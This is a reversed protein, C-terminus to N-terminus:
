KKTITVTTGKVTCKLKAAKAAAQIQKKVAKAKTITIKTAKTGKFANVDVTKLNNGAIKITRIKKGTFAKANLARVKYTNGGIKVTAKLTLTKVNKGKTVAVSKGADADTKYSTGSVKKTKGANTTLATALKLKANASDATKQADAAKQEATTQATKADAAAKDSAAKADNAAKVDSAAKDTATKADATAKDAAAKADAAKQDAEAKAAEAEEQAKKAEEAEAEAVVAKEKDSLKWIGYFTITAGPEAGSIEVADAYTGKNVLFLDDKGADKALAWGEFTVKPTKNEDDFKEVTLGSGVVNPDSVKATADTATWVVNKMTGTVYDSNTVYEFRYSNAKWVAYATNGTLDSVKVGKAEDEWKATTANAVNSWGIFSYGSRTYTNKPFDFTEKSTKVKVDVTQSNQINDDLTIETVPQWVAYFVTAKDVKYKSGVDIVTAGSADATEKTTYDRDTTWGVLEFGSIEFTALSIESGKKVSMTAGPQASINKSSTYEVKIADDASVRVAYLTVTADKTTFFKDATTGDFYEPATADPTTAWGRLTGSITRGSLTALTDTADFDVTKRSIVDTGDYFVYKYTDKEWTATLENNAVVEYDETEKVTAAGTGNNYSWEKFHWNTAATFPNVVKIKTGVIQKELDKNNSNPAAHDGPKLVFKTAEVPEVEAEIANFIPVFVTTENVTVTAGPTCGNTIQWKGDSGASAETSFGVLEYKYGTTVTQGYVLAIENDGPMISDNVTPLTVKSGAKIPDPSDWASSSVTVTPYTLGAVNGGSKTTDISADVEDGWNVYVTISKKTKDSSDTTIKKVADTDSLLTAITDGATTQSSGTVDGKFEKGSGDAELNWTKTKPLFSGKKGTFEKLTQTKITEYAGKTEEPKSGETSGNDNYIVTYYNEAWLPTMSTTTKATNFDVGGRWVQSDIADSKAEDSSGAPIEVTTFVGDLDWGLFTWGTEEAPDGMKTHADDSISKADYRIDFTVPTQPEAVYPGDSSRLDSATNNKSDIKKGLKKVTITMVQGVKDGVLTAKGAYVHLQSYQTGTISGNSSVSAPIIDAGNVWAFEYPAAASPQTKYLTANLPIKDDKNNATIEIEKGKYADALVGGATGEVFQVTNGVDVTAQNAAYATLPSANMGGVALLGALTISLASSFKKRM